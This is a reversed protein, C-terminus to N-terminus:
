SMTRPSMWVAATAPGCIGEDAPTLKARLEQHDNAQARCSNWLAGFHGQLKEAATRDHGGVRLREMESMQYAVAREADSM